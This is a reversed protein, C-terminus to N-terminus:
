ETSRLRDFIAKIGSYDEIWLSVPASAYVGQFDSSAAALAAAM